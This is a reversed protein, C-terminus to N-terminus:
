EAPSRFSEAIVERILVPWTCAPRRLKRSRVEAIEKPEMFKPIAIRPPIGGRVVDRRGLHRARGSSSKGM